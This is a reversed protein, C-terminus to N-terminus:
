RRGRPNFVRPGHPSLGPGEAPYEYQYNPIQVIGSQHQTLLELSFQAAEVVSEPVNRGGTEMVRKAAIDLCRDKLWQNGAARARTPETRGSIFQDVLAGAYQIAPDVYAAEEAVGVGTGSVDRDAVFEYGVQTLRNQLDTATIYEAM